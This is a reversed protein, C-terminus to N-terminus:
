HEGVMGCPFLDRRDHTADVDDMLSLSAAVVDGVVDNLVDGM